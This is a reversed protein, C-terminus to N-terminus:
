KHDEDDLPKFLDYPIMHHSDDDLGPYDIFDDEFGPPPPGIFSSSKNNSPPPGFITNFNYGLGTSYKPSPVFSKQTM